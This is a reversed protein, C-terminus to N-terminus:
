RQNSGSSGAWWIDTVTWGAWRFCHNKYFDAQRDRGQATGPRDACHQLAYCSDLKNPTYIVRTELDIKWDTHMSNMLKGGSKTRTQGFLSTDRYCTIKLRRDLEKSATSLALVSLVANLGVEKKKHSGSLALKQQGMCMAQLSRM